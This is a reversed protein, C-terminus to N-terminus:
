SQKVYIMLSSRGKNPHFVLSNLSEGHLKIGKSQVNFFKARETIKCGSDQIRVHKCDMLILIKKFQFLSLISLFCSLRGNVNSPM